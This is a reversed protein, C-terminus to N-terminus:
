RPSQSPTASAGYGTGAAPEIARLLSMRRRPRQAMEQPSIKHLSMLTQEKFFLDMHVKLAKRQFSPHLPMKDQIEEM